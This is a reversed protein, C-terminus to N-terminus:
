QTEPLKQANWFRKVQLRRKRRRQTSTSQWVPVVRCNELGPVPEDLRSEDFEGTSKVLPAWVPWRIGPGPKGAIEFFTVGPEFYIRQVPLHLLLKVWDCSWGPLICIVTCPFLSIAFAVEPWLSWPPNCWYIEAM